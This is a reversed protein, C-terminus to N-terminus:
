HTAPERIDGLPAPSGTLVATAGVTSVPNALLRIIGPKYVKADGINAGITKSTVTMCTLDLMDKMENMLACLHQHCFNIGSWTNIIGIVPM